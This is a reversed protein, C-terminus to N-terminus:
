SPISLIGRPCCYMKMDAVVVDVDASNKLLAVTGATAGDKIANRLSETHETNRQKAHRALEKIRQKERRSLFTEVLDRLHLVLLPMALIQGFTWGSDGSAQLLTLEIDPLFIFNIALLLVLGIVTPVISATEM